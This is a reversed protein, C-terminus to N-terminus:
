GSPEIFFTVTERSMEGKMVTVFIMFIIKDPVMKQPVVNGREKM